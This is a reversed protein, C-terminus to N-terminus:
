ATRCFSSSTLMSVRSSSSRPPSDASPSLFALTPAPPFVFRSPFFLTSLSHPVSRVSCASSPQRSGIIPRSLSSSLVIRIRTRRRLLLGHRSPSGPTPLVAMTSPRACLIAEPSTGALRCPFRRMERWSPRRTASVFYRPSNSSRSLLTRSSTAASGRMMRKMSSIWVTTPAPAVFPAISAPLRSLGISPLPSSRHMPAVVSSSYLFYMSFSGASSRRKWCTSTSWGVTASVTDMRRPRLSRYSSWWPTRMLSLASTSAATSLSRYMASRKRGSLAISRMSSAAALSFISIVDLGMARSAMSRWTRLSSISLSDSSFAAALSLAASPRRLASSWFRPLRLALCAFSVSCHSASRSSMCRSWRM